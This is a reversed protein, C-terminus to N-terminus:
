NCTCSDKHQLTELGVEENAVQLASSRSYSVM